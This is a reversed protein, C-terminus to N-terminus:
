LYGNIIDNSFTKILAFEDLNHYLLQTTPDKYNAPLGSLDSYRKAPRRSPKCDLSAYSVGTIASSKDSALIQKLSKWVKTKKSNSSSRTSVWEQSKFPYNSKVSSNPESQPDVSPDTTTDNLDSTNQKEPSISKKKKVMIKFFIDIRIVVASSFGYLCRILPYNLSERSVTTSRM